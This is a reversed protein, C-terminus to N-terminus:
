CARCRGASVGWAPRRKPSTWGTDDMSERILEGMHPPNLMPRVRESENKNMLRREKCDTIDM